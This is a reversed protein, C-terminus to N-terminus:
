PYDNAYYREWQHTKYYEQKISQKQKFSDSINFEIVLGMQM